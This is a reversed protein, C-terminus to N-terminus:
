YFNALRWQILNDCIVSTIQFFIMYLPTPSIVCEKDVGERERHHREGSNTMRFISNAEEGTEVFDKGM